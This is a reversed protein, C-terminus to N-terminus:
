SSRENAHQKADRASVDNKNHFDLIEGHFLGMVYLDHYEGNTFFQKRLHGEEVFGIKRYVHVAPANDVDVYLYVKHINLIDFAYHIGYRMAEESL